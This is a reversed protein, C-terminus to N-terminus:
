YHLILYDEEKLTNELKKPVKRFQSSKDLHHQTTKLLPMYNAEVLFDGQENMWKYLQKILDDKINQFEPNKALNTREFPDNEIDYLEEFPIHKFKEAGRKLFANVYENDGYNQEVVEISNFNRIYKYKNSRVMRSPFVADRQINQNTQVGYVYEHIEDENGKLTKLFSSGDMNRPTKGGAIEMFTPLVDTYHIMVDSKTNPKIVGPWRVVFPVNLGRDYVTFKGSTGHDASYIFLTNEDLYKDVWKLIEELQTNDEEVSRYYGAMRKIKDPNDLNGQNFPYFKFDDATKGKVDFYPGHPYESTIYMCFPKEASKFYNQIEKLPIYPRPVGEKKVPKWEQGWDYVSNPGVHSKGALIVEYGLEKMYTTTSVQNEKTKIHNLFCGNKLPYNGTYLQSRSPACIAQGTFANEFLLGEKALRDVAPTHIKENGYCGYDYKDQDDALYFIINPAKTKTTNNEKVIKSAWTVNITTILCVLLFIIKRKMDIIKSEFESQVLLGNNLEKIINFNQLFIYEYTIMFTIQILKLWDKM